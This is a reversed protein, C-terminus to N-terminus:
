RGAVPAGRGSTCEKLLLGGHGRLLLPRVPQPDDPMALAGAVDGAVRRIGRPQRHDVDRLAVDVHRQAGQSFALRACEAVPEAGLGIPISRGGHERRRIEACPLGGVRNALRSPDRVVRRRHDVLPQALLLEAHQVAQRLEPDLL